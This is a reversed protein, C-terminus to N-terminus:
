KYFIKSYLTLLLLIDWVFPNSKTTKSHEKKELEIDHHM